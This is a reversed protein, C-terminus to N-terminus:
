AGRQRALVVPEVERELRGGRGLMQEADAALADDACAAVRIEAGIGLIQALQQASHPQGGFPGGRCQVRAPASSQGASPLSASALM